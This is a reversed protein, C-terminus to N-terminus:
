WQPPDAGFRPLLLAKPNARLVQSCITDVSKWDAPQGPAPWPMEIPFTVFDVGVVAAMRIQAEFVGPPGGLFVYPEGPRYLAVTLDRAPEAKAWFSVRYRRGTTLALNPRHYIHWDPWEGASPRHLNVRLGASGGAGVAPEVTVSGVTNASGTPYSNWDRTFADPGGEFDAAPALEKGSAIDLIRIDDLFVDGPVQGFRFHLTGSDRADQQATFQFEAYRGTPEIKIPAAGPGGFFM